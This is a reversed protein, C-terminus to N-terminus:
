YLLKSYPIMVGEIFDNRNKVPMIRVRANRKILTARDMSLSDRGAGGAEIMMLRGGFEGLSIGVHTISDRNRGFFLLSDCALSSQGGVKKLCWDYLGQATYDEGQKLIGLDQMVRIVLGSCDLGDADSGGWKYPTNIYQFALLFVFSKIM